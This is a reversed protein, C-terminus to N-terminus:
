DTQTNVEFEYITEPSASGTYILEYNGREDINVPTVQIIVTWQGGKDDDFAETFKPGDSSYLVRGSPSVVEFSIREDKADFAVYTIRFYLKPILVPLTKINISDNYVGVLTQKGSTEERVDDCLLVHAPKM